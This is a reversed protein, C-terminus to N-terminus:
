ASAAKKSSGTPKKPAAAKAEGTAAKAERPKRTRPTLAGLIRAAEVRRDNLDRLQTALDIQRSKVTAIQRDLDDLTKQALDKMGSLSPMPQAASAPEDPVDIDPTKDNATEDSM